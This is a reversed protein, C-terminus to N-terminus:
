EISATAVCAEVLFSEIRKRLQLDTIQEGKLSHNSEHRTSQPSTIEKESRSRNQIDEQIADIVTKMWLRSETLQSKESSEEQQEKAPSKHKDMVPSSSRKVLRDAERFSTLISQLM